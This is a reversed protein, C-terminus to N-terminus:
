LTIVSQMSSWWKLYSTHFKNSFHWLYAGLHNWFSISPVNMLRAIHNHASQVLNAVARPRTSCSSQLTGSKESHISALKELTIRWSSDLFEVVQVREEPVESERRIKRMKSCSFIPSPNSQTMKARKNIDHRFSCNDNKSCKVNSERQWCDGLIKQERQKTKQNKVFVNKEYNWNRAGFNKNRIEQEINKKVMTKMSHYDWGLKKHHTELFYLELVTKLKKSERVINKYLWEFNDDPPIKTMSLIWDWKSDFEQITMSFVLLSYSLMSRSLITSELSGSTSPSWFLLINWLFSRDQKQIKQEELSIRRKFSPNHIIKNLASSTGADLVEFNPMSVLRISSSSKFDDM